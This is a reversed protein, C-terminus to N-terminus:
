LLVRLWFQSSGSISATRTVCDFFVLCRVLAAGKNAASLVILKEKLQKQKLQASSEQPESERGMRTVGNFAVGRVLTPRLPIKGLCYIYALSNDAFM